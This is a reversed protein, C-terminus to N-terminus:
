AANTWLHVRGSGSAAAVVGAVEYCAVRSCVATNLDSQCLTQSGSAVDLCCVGRKMDGCFIQGGDQPGPGWVAKFPTVWRGTQNYHRFKTREGWAGKDESWIRVTDDYSTSVM